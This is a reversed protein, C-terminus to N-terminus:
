RRRWRQQHTLEAPRRPLQQPYLATNARKGWQQGGCSWTQQVGGHLLQDTLRLEAPRMLPVACPESFHPHTGSPRGPCVRSDHHSCPPAAGRARQGAYGPTPERTIPSPLSQPISNTTGKGGELGQDRAALPCAILPTSPPRPAWAEQATGPSRRFKPQNAEWHSSRNLGAQKSDKM